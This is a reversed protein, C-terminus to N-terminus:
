DGVLEAYSRLEEVALPDVKPGNTQSVQQFAGAGSPAPLVQSWAGASAGIYKGRQTCGSENTGHVKPRRWLYSLIPRETQVYNCRHVLVPFVRLLVKQRGETESSENTSGM